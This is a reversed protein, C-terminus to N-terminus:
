APGALLVADVGAVHHREVLGHGVVHAARTAPLGRQEATLTQHALEGAGPAEVHLRAARVAEERPQRRLEGPLRSYRRARPGRAQGPTLGRAPRRWGVPPIAEGSAYHTEFHRSTIGGSAFRPDCGGEATLGAISSDGYSVAPGVRYPAEDSRSGGRAGVARLSGERRVAVTFFRQPVVGGVALM